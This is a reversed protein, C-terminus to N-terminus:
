RSVFGPGSVPHEFLNERTKRLVEIDPRSKASALEEAMVRDMREALM